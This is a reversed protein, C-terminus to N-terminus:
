DLYGRGRYGKTIISEYGNAPSMGMSLSRQVAVPGRNYVLLALKLDGKYDRILGRLYKFGIRLNVDPDLLQERTVNPEFERATGLMLQTLGLAGASSVARTDFVSEVRVLRFGLEPEIGATTAADYIRRALEPKIRYKASYTYIRHLRSLSERREGEKADHGFPLTPAASVAKSRKLVEGAPRWLPQIPLSAAKSAAPATATMGNFAIAPAVAPSPADPTVIVALTFVVAAASFVSTLRRKAHRRHMRRRRAVADRSPVKDTSDTSDTM